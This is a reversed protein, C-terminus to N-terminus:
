TKREAMYREPLARRIVKGLSNRPLEDVVLLCEPSKIPALDRKSLWENIGELTVSQGPLPVVAIGIREGLVEDPAGFFAAERLQPHGEILNDLEAPSIKMGGRIIVEKSRGVFRYYREGEGGIEFLDGTCFYGQEDFATRNLEPEDWYGDFRIASDIRLEGPRGPTVIEEGTEVDVLRTRVKEASRSSWKFGPSGFRPFYQARDSPDPVDRATSFLACGENSGFINAIAIGFRQQWGEVLWPTLPASGSGLSRLSSLDVNALLAENKLLQTLVAPPAITYTIREQQLQQLFTPLDFPHHQVLRARNMLWPLVTGGISATNIMPFPNLISDGPRVEGIEACVEGNAIWHNHSRPVGKPRAETGSTWCITLIDNPDIRLEKLRQALLQLAPQAPAGDVLFSISDGEGTTLVHKLSPLERRLEEFADVPRTDKFARVTVVASARAKTLMYRLEHGRFQMAFPCFILGLRACALFVIASEVTNPLQAALVDGQNLGLGVLVSALSDVEADLQRYTLRRPASGILRNRNPPDVLAEHDAALSVAERLVDDM